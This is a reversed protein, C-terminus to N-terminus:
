EDIIDGELKNADALPMWFRIPHMRGVGTPSIYGSFTVSDHREAGKRVYVRAVKLETGIPLYCNVSNGRRYQFQIRDYPVASVLNWLTKNRRECHLKFWIDNTLILKTGLPPIFLKAM